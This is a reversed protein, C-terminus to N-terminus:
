IDPCLGKTSVKTLQLAALGLVFFYFFLIVTM